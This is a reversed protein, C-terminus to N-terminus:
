LVILVLICIVFVQEDDELVELLLKKRSNQLKAIKSRICVCISNM